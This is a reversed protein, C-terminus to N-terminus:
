NGVHYRVLESFNEYDSSPEPRASFKVMGVNKAYYAKYTVIWITDELMSHAEFLMVPDFDGAPVKVPTDFRSTNITGPFDFGLIPYQKKSVILGPCEFFVYGEASVIQGDASALFHNIPKRHFDGKLHYFRYGLM